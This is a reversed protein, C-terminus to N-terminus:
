KKGKIEAIYAEIDEIEEKLGDVYKQFMEIKKKKSWVHPKSGMGPPCCCADFGMHGGIHQKIPICKM